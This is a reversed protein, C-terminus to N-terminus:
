NHTPEAAANSATERASGVEEISVRTKDVVKSADLPKLKKSKLEYSGQEPSMLILRGHGKAFGTAIEVRVFYEQGAKADLEIGSQTDNSRFTHKGPDVKIAFYRGNDMRALQAEDCYVSPELAGGVFQKYRYVHVTAKSQSADNTNPTTAAEQALAIVGTLSIFLSLVKLAKM